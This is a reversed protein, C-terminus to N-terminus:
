RTTPPAVAEASAARVRDALQNARALALDRLWATPVLPGVDVFSTYVVRSVGPESAAQIAWSGRVSRLDGAISQWTITRTARALDRRLTYSVKALAVSVVFRVDTSSDGRERELHVSEIDPFVSRFRRVDWLAQLVADPAARVLFTARLGQVGDAGGLKEVYPPAAVDLSVQPTSGSGPSSLALLLALALV